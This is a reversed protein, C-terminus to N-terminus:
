FNSHSSVPTNDLLPEKFIHYSSTCESCSCCNTLHPATLTCTHIPPPPPKRFPPQLSLRDWAVQHCLSHCTPPVSFVKWLQSPPPPSSHWIPSSISASSKGLFAELAQQSPWGKGLHLMFSNFGKLCFPSIVLSQMETNIVRTKFKHSYM